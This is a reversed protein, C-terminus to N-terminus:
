PSAKKREYDLQRKLKNFEKNDSKGNEKINFHNLLGWETDDFLLERQKKDKIKLLQELVVNPKCIYCDGLAFSPTENASGRDAWLTSFFLQLLTTDTTSCFYAPFIELIPSYQVDAHRELKKIATQYAPSDNNIWIRHFNDALAKQQLLIRTLLREKQPNDLKEILQVSHSFIYGEIEKDENMEVIKVWEKGEPLDCYSFENKKIESIIPFSKGPSSRVNTYGDPDNIIAVKNQAFLTLTCFVILITLIYNRPTKKM